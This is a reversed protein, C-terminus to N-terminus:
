VRLGRWAAIDPPTSTSQKAGSVLLNIKKVSHPFQKEEMVMSVGAM